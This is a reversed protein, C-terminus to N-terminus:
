PIAQIRSTYTSWNTAAKYTNVSASPVYIPCDNTYEFTNSDITPPTTADCRISTLGSCRYFAYGDINTVGSPIHVSNLSACYLFAGEGISTVSNPITVSSLSSCTSFVYDGLSTVCTGIEAFAFNARNEELEDESLETSSDCAGSSEGGYIDVIRYKQSTPPPPPPPTPPVFGCDESDTEILEGVSTYLTTWTVGADVSRQYEDLYHKDYGVCTTATSITRFKVTPVYAEIPVIRDSYESWESKYTEVSGSPVCIPYTFGTGFQYNYSGFMNRDTLEPPTEAKIVIKQLTEALPVGIIKEISPPFEIEEINGYNWPIQAIRVCNGMYVKKIRLTDISDIESQNLEYSGDCPITYYLRSVGQSDPYFHYNEYIAYFKMNEYTEECTSASYGYLHYKRTQSLSDPFQVRYREIAEYPVFVNLFSERSTGFACWLPYEDGYISICKPPIISKFYVNVTPLVMSRGGIWVFADAGIIEVNCGITVNGLNHCDAFASDGIKVVSDPITISTLATCEQFAGGDIYILNSDSTFNVNTLGTCHYFAGGEVEGVDQPITIGSLSWCNWFDEGGISELKSPLTVSPLSYCEHFAGSLYRLNDSLKVYRLKECFKFVHHGFAGVSDTMTVEILNKCSEFTHEGVYTVCDGIEASTMATYPPKSTHGTYPYANGHVYYLNIENSGEECCDSLVEGDSYYFTYKLDECCDPSDAEILTTASIELPVYDHWTEGGDESYQRVSRVYKDNDVCMTGSTEWRSMLYDQQFVCTQSSGDCYEILLYINRISGTSNKPFTVVFRDAYVVITVGVSTTERVRTLCCKSPITLTIGETPVYYFTGRPLCGNYERVTVTIEEQKNYCYNLTLTSDVSASTPEINNCVTITYDVNALGSSPSVTIGSNSSVIDWDSDCRFSYNRCTVDNFIMNGLSTYVLCEGFGNCDQSYFIQTDTFTGNLCLSPFLSEYGALVKYNRTENEFADIEMMLLYRAIGDAVCEYGGYKSTYVWTRASLFEYNISDYFGLVHGNDHADNLTISIKNTNQVSDDGETTFSPQLGYDFGCLTYEGNRTKIVSAYKNDIFELLNYHWSSKYGDFDIDFNIVHSIKNGDFTETLKGSTKKFDVEKFGGNNTYKVLNDVHRSYKRENLWLKDIGGLTYSKCESTKAASFNKLELVPHNSVTSLTFDTHDEQYGLNYTYTVKCPFLPNILWYTGEEDKVIAYYRGDFNDKNAYGNVSFTLTHTFKYREDLSESESLKIGYCGLEMPTQSISAIYAAGDDVRIDKVADENILYVVNVLKSLRYKCNDEIYNSVM